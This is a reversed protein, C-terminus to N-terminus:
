SAPGANAWRPGADRTQQTCAEIKKERNACM